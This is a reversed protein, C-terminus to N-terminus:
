REVGYLSGLAGAKGIHEQLQSITERGHVYHRCRGGPDDEEENARWDLEITHRTTSSAQFISDNLFVHVMGVHM